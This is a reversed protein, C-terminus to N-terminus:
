KGERGCEATWGGTSRNKVWNGIVLQTQSIQAGKLLKDLLRCEYFDELLLNEIEIPILWISKSNKSLYNLESVKHQAQDRPVFNDM